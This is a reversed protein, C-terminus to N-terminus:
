REPRSQPEPDRPSQTEFVFPPTPLPTWWEHYGPWGGLNIDQEFDGISLVYGRGLDLPTGVYPAETVPCTWWLVDGMDEHWESIHRATGAAPREM